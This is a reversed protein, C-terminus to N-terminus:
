IQNPAIWYSIVEVCRDESLHQSDAKEGIHIPGGVLAVIRAAFAEPTLKAKNRALELSYRNLLYAKLLVARQYALAFNSGYIQQVEPRLERRDARGVMLVFVPQEKAARKILSDLCGEPEQVGTNGSPDLLGGDVGMEGAQKTPEPLDSVVCRDAVAATAKEDPPQKPRATNSPVHSAAWAAIAVFVMSAILASITPGAKAFADVVKAAAEAFKAWGEAEGHVEPAGGVGPRRLLTVCFVLFSFVGLGLSVWGVAEILM